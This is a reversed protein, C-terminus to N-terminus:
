QTNATTSGTLLPEIKEKVFETTLPGTHRMLVKGTSDLVFTEPVGAVGWNLGMQNKPDQGVSTFPNGMDSLFAMANSRQDKWNVGYIPVGEAQLSMLIPHEDRCPACWSAWFNVLKISGSRLAADTFPADPGLPEVQAVPAPKNQFATALQGADERSMGWVFVGALAAFILPPVVMLPKIM